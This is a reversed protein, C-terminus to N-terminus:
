RGRVACFYVREEGERPARMRCDGYTSVKSFGAEMLWSRLQAIPYSRQRHIELQRDWAGDGRHNFLDM